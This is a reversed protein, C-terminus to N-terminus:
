PRSNFHLDTFIPGKPSYCVFQSKLKKCLLTASLSFVAATICWHVLTRGDTDSECRDTLSEAKKTKKGWDTEEPLPGGPSLCLLRPSVSRSGLPAAPPWRRAPSSACVPASRRAVRRCRPRPWPTRPPLCAPSTGSTRDTQTSDQRWVSASVNHKHGLLVGVGQCVFHAQGDVTQSSSDPVFGFRQALHISHM